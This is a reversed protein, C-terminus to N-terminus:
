IASREHYPRRMRSSGGRGPSEVRIVDAGLDGFLMGLRDGNLLSASEVVRVVALLSSM